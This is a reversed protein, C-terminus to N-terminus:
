EGAAREKVRSNWLGDVTRKLEAVGSANDIVADARALRDSRDMQSDMREMVEQTSLGNRVRLREVVAKVPSDTVWVEDVLSDWGAEFLLAAEVVTVPIGRSRLRGLEDEVMRSIGPHVIGNLKALQEPNSFVISGLKRRDIEGNPQLIDEGFAGVVERWCQTDPKYAEHGVADAEVVVAGLDRLHRAVESKGTGIGGTLGIVLM